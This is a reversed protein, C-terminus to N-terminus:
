VCLHGFKIKDNFVEEIPTLDASNGPWDFMNFGRETIKRLTSKSWLWPAKDKM